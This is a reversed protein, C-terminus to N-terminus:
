SGYLISATAATGHMLVVPLFANAQAVLVALLLWGKMNQMKQKEKQTIQYQPAKRDSILPLFVLLLLLL